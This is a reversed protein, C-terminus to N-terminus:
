REDEFMVGRVIILGDVIDILKHGQLQRLWASTTTESKNSLEAARWFTVSCNNELMYEVILDLFAGLRHQMDRHKQPAVITGDLKNM